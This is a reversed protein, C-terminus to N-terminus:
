STFYLLVTLGLTAFGFLALPPAQNPLSEDGRDLLMSEPVRQLRPESEFIIEAWPVDEERKDLSRIVRAAGGSPRDRADLPPSLALGAPKRASTKYDPKTKDGAKSTLVKGKEM